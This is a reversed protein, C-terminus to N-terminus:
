RAALYMHHKYYSTTHVGDRHRSKPKQLAFAGSFLVSCFTDVSELIFVPAFAELSEDDLM